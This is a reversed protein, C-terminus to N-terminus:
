RRILPSKPCPAAGWGMARTFSRSRRLRRYPVPAEDLGALKLRAYSAARKLRRARWAIARQLDRFQGARRRAKGGFRGDRLALAPVSRGVASPLGGGAPGRHGGAIGTDRSFRRVDRRWRFLDLLHRRFNDDFIPVGDTGTM